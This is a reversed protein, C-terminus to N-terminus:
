ASNPSRQVLWGGIATLAAVISLALPVAFMLPYDDFGTSTTWGWIWFATSALGVIAAIILIVGLGRAVLLAVGLVGIVLCPWLFASADIGYWALGMFFLSGILALLLFAVGSLRAYLRAATRRSLTM